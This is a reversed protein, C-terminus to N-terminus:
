RSGDGTRGRDGSDYDAPTDIDAHIGPDDVEIIHIQSAHRRLFTRLTDQPGLAVVEPWAERPILVPHGRRGGYVPAIIGGAGQKRANVLAAM